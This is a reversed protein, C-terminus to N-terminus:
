ERVKKRIFSILEAPTQFGDEIPQWTSRAVCDQGAAQGQLSNTQQSGSSSAPPDGRLALISTIGAQVVDDLIEEAMERTLETCSLHMQVDLGCVAKAAVLTELARKGATM